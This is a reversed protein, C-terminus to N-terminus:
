AGSLMWLMGVGMGLHPITAGASGPVRNGVSLLIATVVVDALVVAGLTFAVPGGIRGALMMHTAVVMILASIVHVVQPTRFNRAMEVILVAAIAGTVALWWQGLAMATDSAMGLMAGNMLLHAVDSYTSGENAFLRVLSILVCVVLAAILLSAAASGAQDHVHMDVRYRTAVQCLTLKVSM